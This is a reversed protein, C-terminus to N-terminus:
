SRMGFRWTPASFKALSEKFDSFLVPSFGGPLVNGSYVVGRDSRGLDLSFSDCFANKLFLRRLSKKM